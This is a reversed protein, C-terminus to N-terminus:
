FGGASNEERLFSVIIFRLRLSFRFDSLQFARAELGSDNKGRKESSNTHVYLFEIQIRFKLLFRTFHELAAFFVCNKHSTHTLSLTM